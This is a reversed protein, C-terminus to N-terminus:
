LIINPSICATYRHRYNVGYGRYTGCPTCPIRECYPGRYVRLRDSRGLGDGAATIHRDVIIQEIIDGQQSIVHATGETPNGGRIGVYPVFASSWLGTRGDVVRQVIHRTNILGHYISYCWRSNRAAHAISELDIDHNM